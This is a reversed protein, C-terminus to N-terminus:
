SFPGAQCRRETQRQGSTAATPIAISRVIAAGRRQRELARDGRPPGDGPGLHLGSAPHAAAIGLRSGVSAELQLNSAAGQGAHQARGVWAVLAAPVAHAATTRRRARRDVDGRQGLHQHRAKSALVGGAIEVAEIRRLRGAAQGPGAQCRGLLLQALDQAHGKVDARQAVKHRPRQRRRGGGIRGAAIGMVLPEVLEAGPECPQLLAPDHQCQSSLGARGAQLLEDDIPDGGTGGLQRRADIEGAMEHRQAPAVAIGEAGLVPDLRAIGIAAVARELRDLAQATGAALHL